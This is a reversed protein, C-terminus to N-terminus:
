RVPATQDRLGEEPRDDVPEDEEKLTDLHMLRKVLPSVALVAVAIGITWWGITNYVSLTAEKTMEGDHGGTAEGIKGAVFNGVASMYFWAGMILSALHKPALRNMASLGVPSLCLEGTTQFLYVLFVFLVPTLAAMGASQAGWVFILFSFGVQALALGFKAPASPEWGRKGLWLWLWAFVPGLLVIYIPNLSQFFTTQFGGRDVYRDTYLNLSGGAQEFLGWFVPNLAVLFVIAFIRDRADPQLKMAAYLVYGLLAVGAVILLTEIIDQYQVLFWIVGISAVGIAYLLWETRLTLPKPPEGKGMLFPKGIVFVAAGLLMGVGAAGFGYKWGYTEGLWGAMITGIAAGVNVGVYFITYAGDRRPDTLGYLQGVIVSINAKLFGSGVVICSLALWFINITPDDQGGSGEFAMLCHGATLILAGFLVAKRQGLYRDALYGGLVPTVYVLSTYAGYVLNAQGDSFLWHKTLYFILLARMGYYSFREWMEAFFLIYLGKPHGIFEQKKSVLGVAGGALLVVLAILAIAPITAM